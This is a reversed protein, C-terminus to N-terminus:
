ADFTAPLTIRFTSGKGPQSRVEVDGGHARAIERCIALGLGTGERRASRAADGRWFREFARLRQEENMGVGDDRVEIWPTGGADGAAITVTGGDRRACEIANDVLNFLARRLRGEDAIVAFGPPVLTEVRLGRAVAEPGLQRVVTEAVPALEVEEMDLELRGADARALELLDAALRTLRDVEELCSGLVARYEDSTRTRRLTVEIQGRLAALPSRLEHSADAAFREHSEIAGYLRELMEDLVSTLRALEDGTGPDGLRTGLHERGITRARDIIVDVPRLASAALRYGVLATAALACIGAVVLARALSALSAEVPALPVAVVFVYVHGDKEARVAVARGPAGDLLVDVTPADGGVTARLTEASVLRAHGELTPSAEVVDGDSTLIQVHKQAHRANVLSPEDFPHMHVGRDGDTASAVETGALTRLDADLSELLSRRLGAYVVALTVTLILGFVFTWRYTLRARFSRL